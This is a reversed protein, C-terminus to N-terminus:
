NQLVHEIFKLVEERGTKNKVSSIFKKPLTEWTQLLENEYMEVANGGAKNKKDTKTFVLMFPVAHEGMWNTFEIDIKQPPLSGDILQFVCFLNEREILYNKIMKGWDARQGKSVKAYGYGPLDVLHWSENILFYNMTQTKGPNSSTKALSNFGTLMNLLSSKGVNSRGIFAFEQLNTHPCKKVDTFSSIFKASRIIM